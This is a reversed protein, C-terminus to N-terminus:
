LFFRFNIQYTKEKKELLQNLNRIEEELVSDETEYGWVGAIGWELQEKKGDTRNEGQKECGVLLLSVALLCIVFKKM